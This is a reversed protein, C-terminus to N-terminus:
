APGDVPASPRERRARLAARASYLGVDAYAALAAAERGDRPCVAAGVLVEVPQGRHRAGAAVARSIHHELLAAGASDTDPALVWCRGPRERTLSGSLEGLTATLAQEVQEALQALDEPSSESRLRELEALEVLLVTFPRADRKHRELEGGIAHIWAAPGEARRQDRIEIAAAPAAGPGAQEDVIVARSPAHHRPAPGRPPQAPPETSTERIVAPSAQSAGEIAVALVAACVHALRNGAEALPWARPQEDLAPSLQELLAQWLVGRLAEVAALLAVPDHAGAILALRAAPSAPADQAGAQHGALRELEADSQVAKIIHRCLAPADSALADLPLQGIDPLPLARILAIAWRRALEQDHALLADAPLDAIARAHAGALAPRPAPV